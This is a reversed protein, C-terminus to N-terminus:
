PSLPAVNERQTSSLHPPIPSARRGKTSLKTARLEMPSETSSPAPTSSVSFLTVCGIVVIASFFKWENFCQTTSVSCFLYHSMVFVLVARLSQMIGVAVSNIRAILVYYNLSHLMSSITVVPYVLIIGVWSGHHDQVVDMVETQWNPFTHFCLYLFTLLSAYSGVMSCVKEPIPKPKFTSLVKDSLVYVCAYLFTAGLTVLAGFSKELGLTHLFFSTLPWTPENAKAEEREGFARVNHDLSLGLTSWLTREMPASYLGDVLYTCKLMVLCYTSKCSQVPGDDPSVDQVTGVASVALGLTVGVIALWQINNLERGLFIRTLIACWIVISSYIVQYM